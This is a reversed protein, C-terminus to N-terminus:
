SKQAMDWKRHIRKSILSNLFYYYLGGLKSNKIQITNKETNREFKATYNHKGSVFPILIRDNEIIVQDNSYIWLQYRQWLNSGKFLVKRQKVNEIISKFSDFDKNIVM